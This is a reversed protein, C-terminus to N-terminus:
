FVFDPTRWDWIRERHVCGMPDGLVYNYSAKEKQKRYFWKSIMCRIFLPILIILMIKCVNSLLLPSIRFEIKWVLQCFLNSSTKASKNDFIHLIVLWKANM